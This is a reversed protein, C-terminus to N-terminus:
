KKKILIGLPKKSKINRTGLNNLSLEWSNKALELLDGEEYGDIHKILSEEFYGIFVMELIDYAEKEKLIKETQENLVIKVTEIYKLIVHRYIENIKEKYWPSVNDPRIKNVNIIKKIQRNFWSFNVLINLFRKQVEPKYDKKTVEKALSFLKELSLKTVSLRMLQAERQKQKRIQSINDSVRTKMDKIQQKTETDFVELDELDINEDSTKNMNKIASIIKEKAYKKLEEDINEIIKELANKRLLLPRIKKQEEIKKDGSLFNLRSEIKKIQAVVDIFENKAKNKNTLHKIIENNTDIIRRIYVKRRRSENINKEFITEELINFFEM